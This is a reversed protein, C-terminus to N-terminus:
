DNISNLSALSLALNSFIPAVTSAYLLGDIKGYERPVYIISGPYIKLDSKRFNFLGTNILFSSGNPHILIIRNSDAYQNYGGASNIYDAVSRISADYSRSGPSLVEGLIFIDPSFVPIHINDGDSLLPDDLSESNSFREDFTVQVRGVPKAEKIQELLLQIKQSDSGENILSPSLLSKILDNYAKKNFEEELLRASDRYLQGGFPYAFDEYGGVKKIFSRLTERGQEINYTGPNKVAGSLTITAIKKSERDQFPIYITDGNVVEIEFDDIESSNVVTRDNYSDIVIQGNKNFSNSFGGALTILDSFKETDNLEFLGEYVVGGSIGVKTGSGQVQILDGSRIKNKFNSNGFVLFDYLDVEEILKNNRKLLIKRYSGNKTIGGAAILAHIINANGSLTYSGPSEVQGIIIISIDKVSSLSVFTESGLYANKLNDKIIKEASELSLGGIILKGFEPINISGDRQIVLKKSSRLLLSGTNQIVLEDGPGLIYDGSLSPDNIPMFSTQISSFFKSGFVELQRPDLSSDMEESLREEIDNLERKIRIVASNIKEVSTEATLFEDEDNQNQQAIGSQLSDPLSNLFQDSLEQAPLFNSVFFLYVYLFRLNM